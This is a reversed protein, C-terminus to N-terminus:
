IALLAYLLFILMGITTGAAARSVPVIYKHDFM